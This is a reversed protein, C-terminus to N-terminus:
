AQGATGEFCFFPSESLPEFQFDDDEFVKVCAEVYDPNFRIGAEEKIIDLAKDIGRGPRYPRHSLIAEVTDAIAVIQAERCIDDGKLGNPYGSGDIREHHQLIIDAVPWPFPTDKIIGHGIECHTRILSMSVPDLTGPRTLIEGPVAIKGIDHILAGIRIGKIMHESCDLKRAIRVSLQAVQQQHGFTYPDRMEITRSVSSVTQELLRSIEREHEQQINEVIKRESIDRLDATFYTKGDHTFPVIALEIPFETGDARVASIEIRRGAVQAVGTERYREIGDMHAQKFREPIILDVLPRGICQNRHYGFTKEAAPNFEVILGQEDIAIICDLASTIIAKLWENDETERRSM